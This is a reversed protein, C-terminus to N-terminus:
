FEEVEPGLPPKMEQDPYDSRIRAWYLGFHPISFSRLPAFQVGLLTEAVPPRKFKPTAIVAM